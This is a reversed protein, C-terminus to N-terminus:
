ENVKGFLKDSVAKEIKKLPKVLKKEELNTGLTEDIKHAIKKRLTALKNTNFNNETIQEKKPEYGFAKPNKDITSQLPDGVARWLGAGKNKWSSISDIEEPNNLVAIIKDPHKEITDKCNFLVYDIALADFLPKGEKDKADILTKLMDPHKDIMDLVVSKDYSVKDLASVLDQKTIQESYEDFSKVASLENKATEIPEYRHKDRDFYKLRGDMEDKGNFKRLNPHKDMHFDFNSFKNVNDLSMEGNLKIKKVHEAKKAELEKIEESM